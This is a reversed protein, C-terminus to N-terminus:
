ARCRLSADALKVIEEDGRGASLERGPGRAGSALPALDGGRDVEIVM